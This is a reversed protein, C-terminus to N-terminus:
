QYLRILEDSVAAPTLIGLDTFLLTLASAPTYDCAPNELSILAAAPGSPLLSPDWPALPRQEARTEPLDSQSSLICPPHPKLPAVPPPCLSFPAVSVRRYLPSPISNIPLTHRKIGVQSLPYLRAFKYSESAVYVPKTFAKAVLAM